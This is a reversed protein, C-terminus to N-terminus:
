EESEDVSDADNLLMLYDINAEVSTIREDISVPPNTITDSLSKCHAIANEEYSKSHDPIFPEYQHYTPYDVDGIYIKYGDDLIEYWYTGGNKNCPFKSDIKM